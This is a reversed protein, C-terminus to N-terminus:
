GQTARALHSPFWRQHGNAPGLLERDVRSPLLLFGAAPFLPRVDEQELGVQTILMWSLSGRLPRTQRQM